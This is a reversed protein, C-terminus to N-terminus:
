DKEIDMEEIYEASLPYGLENYFSLYETPIPNYYITEYFDSVELVTESPFDVQVIVLDEINREDFIEGLWNYLANNMEEFNPFFYIAPVQEDCLLSNSGIQPILGFKIISSLNKMDTVHFFRNPHNELTKM